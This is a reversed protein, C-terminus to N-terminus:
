SIKCLIKRHLEVYIVQINEFQTISFNNINTTKLLKVLEQGLCCLEIVM